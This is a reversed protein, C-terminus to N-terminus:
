AQAKFAYLDFFVIGRQEPALRLGDRMYLMARSAEDAVYDCHPCPCMANRCLADAFRRRAILYDLRAAPAPAAPIM